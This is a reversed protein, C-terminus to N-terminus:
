RGVHRMRVCRVTGSLDRVQPPLATDAAFGAARVLACVPEAQGDGVELVLWGGAVLRGAAQRTIAAYADLGHRGGDIARRPDYRAVEPALQAIDRSPVYPPNSVIFSFGGGLGSAWDACVFGARQGVGHAAANRRATSAAEASVDVAVGFAEPLETLLAVAICGSGTGLDAFRVPADRWGECAAIELCAEVITETDARPDLTAASVAFDLGWFERVGLIRSVPERALRREVYSRVRGLAADRVPEHERRVLETRDAGLAAGVLVAADLGAGAIGAAELRDRVARVLAGASVCTEARVSRSAPM